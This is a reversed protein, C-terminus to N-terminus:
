RQVGSLDCLVADIAVLKRAPRGVFNEIAQDTGVRLELAREPGSDPRLSGAGDKVSQCPM